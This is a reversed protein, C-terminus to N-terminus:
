NRQLKDFDYVISKNVVPLSRSTTNEDKNLVVISFFANMHIGLKILAVPGIYLWLHLCFPNAGLNKKQLTEIFLISKHHM